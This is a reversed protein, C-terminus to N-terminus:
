QPNNKRNNNSGYNVRVREKTKQFLFIVLMVALFVIVDLIIRAIASCVSNGINWLTKWLYDMEHVCFLYLSNKGIYMIPKMLDGINMCVISVKMATLTGMMATIFCLPYLTYRRCALELYNKNIHYPILFTLLWIGFYIVMKTYIKNEANSGKFLYGMLFLPMIALVIDYSFPLWQVQGIIVGIISLITCVFVLMKKNLKLHLFDFLSRGLFLVILFWPMGLAPIKRYAINVSVGSSFLFTLLKREFFEKCYDFSKFDSFNSIIQIIIRMFFLVFAPVVLHMFSKKLKNMFQKDNCSYTYTICSLIFFLPMHFSFIAGRLVGGVTHGVIVLLITFGKVCDIWDVRNSNSLKEMM